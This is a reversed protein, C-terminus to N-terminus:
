EHRGGAASRRGELRETKVPALPEAYPLCNTFVVLNNGPGRVSPILLGDNRLREVAGGVIQCRSYDIDSLAADDIGLRALLQRDTLDLVSKLSLSFTHIERM